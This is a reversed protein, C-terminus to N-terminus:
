CVGSQKGSIAKYFKPLEKPPTTLDADLIMLIDKTALDFGLRVADGKGSREAARNDTPPCQVRSCGTSNKGM